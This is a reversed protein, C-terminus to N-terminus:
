LPFQPVDDGDHAHIFQGLLVLDRDGAGALHLAEQGLGEMYRLLEGTHGAPIHRQFSVMRPKLIIRFPSHSLMGLQKRNAPVM